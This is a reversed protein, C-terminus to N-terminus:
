STVVTHPQPGRGIMWQYVAFLDDAISPWSFRQEVLQRGRRGMADCEEDSMAFLRHLGRVIDEVKPEVQPQRAMKSGRKVPKAATNPEAM